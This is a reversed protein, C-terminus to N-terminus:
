LAAEIRRRLSRLFPHLSRLGLREIQSELELVEARITQLAQPNPRPAKLADHARLTTRRLDAALRGTPSTPSPVFEETADDPRPDGTAAEAPPRKWRKTALPTFM